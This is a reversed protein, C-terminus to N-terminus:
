WLKTDNPKRETPSTPLIDISGYHIANHTLKQTCIANEPDFVIKNGNLIDDITIPNIHHILVPGYIHFGEVGLDCGDDRLIIIDRFKKWEASKYFKQCLYRRSGFTEESIVGDLKLYEFREEFTPLKILESYTKM